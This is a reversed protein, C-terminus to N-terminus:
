ECRRWLQSGTITYGLGIIKEGAKYPLMQWQRHLEDVVDGLRWQATDVMEQVLELRDNWYSSRITMELFSTLPASCILMHRWSAEPRNWVPTHTDPDTSFFIDADRIILGTIVHLVPNQYITAPSPSEIDSTWMYASYPYTFTANFENNIREAVAPSMNVLARNMPRHYLTHRETDCLELFIQRKLPKSVSVSDRWLRCVRQALLLDRIPLNILIAELLEATALVKGASGNAM